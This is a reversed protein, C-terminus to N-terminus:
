VLQLFRSGDGVPVTVLRTLHNDLGSSLSESGSMGSSDNVAGIGM